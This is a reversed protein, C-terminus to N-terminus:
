CLSSLAAMAIVMMGRLATAASLNVQSTTTMATPSPTAGCMAISDMEGCDDGSCAEGCGDAEQTSSSGGGGGGGPPLLRRRSASLVNQIESDMMEIEQASLRRRECAGEVDSLPTGSYCGLIYPFEDNVIYRYGNGDSPDYGHCDDLVSNDIMEGTEDGFELYIPFGDLAVGVLFREQNATAEAYGDLCIPTAHYHYNGQEQPHGLCDDFGIAEDIVADTCELSYASFIQVGNIAYGVAGGPLGTTSDEREPNLPILEDIDQEEFWSTLPDTYCTEGASYTDACTEHDPIGNAVFSITDDASNKTVSVESYMYEGACSGYRVGCSRSVFKAIEDDTLADVRLILPLVASAAFFLSM